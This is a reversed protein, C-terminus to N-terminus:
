FVGKKSLFLCIILYLSERELTVKLIISHKGWGLFLVAVILFVNDEFM